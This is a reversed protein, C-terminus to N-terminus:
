ETQTLRVRYTHLIGEMIRLTEEENYTYMENKVCDWFSRFACIVREQTVVFRDIRGVELVNGSEDKQIDIFQIEFSMFCTDEDRYEELGLGAVKPFDPAKIMYQNIKGQKIYNILCELVMCRESLDLREYFDEPCEVVVGHEMFELLGEKSFISTAYWREEKELSYRELLRDIFYARNPLEKHIRNDLIERTLGPGLCPQFEVRNIYTKQKIVEMLYQLSRIDRKGVITCQKKLRNFNERALQIIAPDLTLMGETMEHNFEMYFDDSLIWNKEENDDSNKDACYITMQKKRFMTEILQGLFEINRYEYYSDDEELYVIEEVECPANESMFVRLLTYFDSNITYMKIYLGKGKSFAQYDLVLKIYRLVETKSNMTIFQPFEPIEVVEKVVQIEKTRCHQMTQLIDMCQAFTQSKMEGFVTKEYATKLMKQEDKSMHLNRMILEVKSWAEPLREGNVWRHMVTMEVQCLEAMQTVTIHKRDKIKSLCESFVSM